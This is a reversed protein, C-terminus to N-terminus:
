YAAPGSRRRTLDAIVTLRRMTEGLEDRFAARRKHLEPADAELLDRNRALRLAPKFLELSVSEESALRGQMAWQRGVRLCEQLFREEDVPEDGRAALRDVVLDALRGAFEDDALLQAVEPLDSTLAVVPEAVLGVRQLPKRAGVRNLANVVGPHDNLLQNM